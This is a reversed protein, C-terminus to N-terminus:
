EVLSERQNALVPNFKVSVQNAVAILIGLFILIGMSRHAFFCGLALLFMVFLKYRDSKRWLHTSRKYIAVFAHVFILLGIIGSEYLVRIIQAHPNSWEGPWIGTHSNVFGSSGIGSGFFM